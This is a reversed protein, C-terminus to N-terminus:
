LRTLANLVQASIGTWGILADSSRVMEITAQKFAPYYSETADEVLLCDYGRDNAERMTTQVCVETTVGTLILHTAGLEDLIEQLGTGYFSGKGPKDLVVEGALPALEPVIDSGPEGCVLLRGMPGEDGIKLKQRGRRLKAPPCDSLDPKHCQKTHIIPLNHARFAAILAAMVPIIERSPGPDLGLSSGYGGEELYDRQMDIAFLVLGAPDFDYDYPQASIAPMVMQRLYSSRYESYCGQDFM